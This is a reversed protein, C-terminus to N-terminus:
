ENKEISKRAIRHMRADEVIKKAMAEAIDHENAKVSMLLRRRLWAIEGEAENVSHHKTKNSRLLRKKTDKGDPREATVGQEASEAILMEVNKGNANEEPANQARSAIPSMLQTVVEKQPPPALPSAVPSSVSAQQLWSQNQVNVTPAPAAREFFARQVSLGLCFSVSIFFWFIHERVCIGEPQPCVTTGCSFIRGSTNSEM